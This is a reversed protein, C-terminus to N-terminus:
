QDHGKEEILKLFIEEISEPRLVIGEV